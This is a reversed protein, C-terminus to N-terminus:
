SPHFYFLCCIPYKQLCVKIPFSLLVKTSSILLNLTFLNGGQHLFLICIYTNRKTAALPLTFLFFVAFRM